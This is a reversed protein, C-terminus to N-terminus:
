RYSLLSQIQKDQNSDLDGLEPGQHSVTTAEDAVQRLPLSLLSQIKTRRRMPPHASSACFGPRGANVVRLSSDNAFLKSIVIGASLRLKLRMKDHHAQRVMSLRMSLHPPSEM